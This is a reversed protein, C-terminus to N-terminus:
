SVLNALIFHSLDIIQLQQQKIAYPSDKWLTLFASVWTQISWKWRKALFTGRIDEWDSGLITGCRQGYKPIQLNGAKTFICLEHSPCESLCFAHFSNSERQQCCYSYNHGRSRITVLSQM